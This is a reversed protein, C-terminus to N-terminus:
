WNRRYEFNKAKVKTYFIMERNLEVSDYFEDQIREIGVNYNNEYETIIEKLREENEYMEDLWAILEEKSCKIAKLWENKDM